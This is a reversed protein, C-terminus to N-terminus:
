TRSMNAVAAALPPRVCQSIELNDAFENVRGLINNSQQHGKRESPHWQEDGRRFIDAKVFEM